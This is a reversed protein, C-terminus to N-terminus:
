RKTVWEVFGQDAQLLPMRDQVYLVNRPTGFFTALSLEYRVWDSARSNPSDLLLLCEAQAIAKELQPEIAVNLCLKQFDIWVELEMYM